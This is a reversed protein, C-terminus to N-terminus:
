PCACECDCTALDVCVSHCGIPRCDSYYCWSRCQTLTCSLWAPAPVGGLSPPQAPALLSAPACGAPGSPLAEAPTAAETPAPTAVAAAPAPRTAPTPEAVAVPASAFIAVLMVFWPAKRM